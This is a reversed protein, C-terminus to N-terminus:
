QNTPENKKDGKTQTDTISSTVVSDPHSHLAIHGAVPKVGPIDTNLTFIWSKTTNFAKIKGEMALKFLQARAQHWAIDVRNAVYQVSVPIGAERMVDLTARDLQPSGVKSRKVTM